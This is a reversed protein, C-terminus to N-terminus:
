IAPSVGNIALSSEFKRYNQEALRLLAPHQEREYAWLIAEISCAEREKTYPYPSALFHRAISSSISQDGTASSQAFLSRFFVVHPWRTKAKLCV